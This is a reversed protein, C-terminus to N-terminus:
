YKNVFVAGDCWKKMANYLLYVNIDDPVNRWGAKFEQAQEFHESQYKGSNKIMCKKCQSMFGLEKKSKNQYYFYEYTEPYDIGCKTCKKEKM